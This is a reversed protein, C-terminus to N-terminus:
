RRPLLFSLGEPLKSGLLVAAFVGAGLASPPVTAKVWGLEEDAKSQM